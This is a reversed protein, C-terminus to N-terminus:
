KDGEEKNLYCSIHVKHHGYRWKMTGVMEGGGYLAKKCIRCKKKKVKM